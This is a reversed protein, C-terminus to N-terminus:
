SRAGASSRFACVCAHQACQAIPALLVPGVAM